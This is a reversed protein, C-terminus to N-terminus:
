YKRAKGLMPALVSSVDVVRQGLFCWSRQNATSNYICCGIVYKGEAETWECDWHRTGVYMGDKMAKQIPIGDGARVISPHAFKYWSYFDRYAGRPDDSSRLVQPLADAGDKYLCAYRVVAGPTVSVLDPVAILKYEENLSLGPDVASPDITRDDAMPNRGNRSM